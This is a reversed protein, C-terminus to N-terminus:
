GKSPTLKDMGKREMRTSTGIFFEQRDYVKIKGLDLPSLPDTM